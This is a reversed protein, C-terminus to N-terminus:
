WNLRYVVAPTDEHVTADDRPLVEWPKQSLPGVEGFCEVQRAHQVVDAGARCEPLRRLHAEVELARKHRLLPQQLAARRLVLGIGNGLGDDAMLIDAGGTIDSRETAEDLNSRQQVIRTRAALEHCALGNLGNHCGVRPILPSSTKRLRHPLLDDRLRPAM